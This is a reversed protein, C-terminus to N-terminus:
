FKYRYQLGGGISDEDQNSYDYGLLLSISGYRNLSYSTNIYSYIAKEKPNIPDSLTGINEVFSVKSEFSWKKVAMAIGFHISRSRNIRIFLGSDYPVILPIGITANHYTWGSKYIGNNFYNDNGSGTDAGDSQNTTQIFEILFGKLFGDYDRTNPGYYIGWIGDPFNKLGSGSGDEFPHQHYLTYYGSESTHIYELNYVGLHNGISNLRDGVPADENGLAARFVKLFDDFSDPLKGFEPSTGGWQAYHEIGGKISNKENLKYTLGLRKYHVMAGDADRDDNLNYHAIGWDLEFRKLIQIPENAEVILGPLARANGSLLFNDAVISLGQFKQYPTKSGLTAKLWSNQYSIYLEDRHVVTDVFGDAAVVGAGIEFFSDESFYYSVSGRVFGMANTQSRLRDNTNRYMWFPLSNNNAGLAMGSVEMFDFVFGKKKFPKFYTSEPHVTTIEQSFVPLSLLICGMLIFIQKKM